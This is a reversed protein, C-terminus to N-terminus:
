AQCADGEAARRSELCSVPSYFELKLFTVLSTIFSPHKGRFFPVKELTDSFLHLVVQLPSTDPWSSIV